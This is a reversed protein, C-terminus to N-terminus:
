EEDDSNNSPNYGPQNEMTAQAPQSYQPQTYQQQQPAPARQAYQPQQYGQPQQHYVPQQRYQQQQAPQGYTAPQPQPRYAAAQPQVYAQPQSQRYQVAPQPNYAVHQPQQVTTNSAPNHYAVQPRVQPYQARQVMVQRGGYNPAMMVRQGNPMQMQMPGQTRVAYRVPLAQANGMYGQHYGGGQGGMMYAQNQALQPRGMQFSPQYTQYARAQLSAQQGYNMVGGYRGGQNLQNKKAEYQQKDLEGAEKMKEIYALNAVKESMPNSRNYDDFFTISHKEYTMDDYRWVDKTCKNIMYRVPLFLYVLTCLFAILGIPNQQESLVDGFAFISIGYLFCYFPILNGFVQAMTAGLHEPIKHRRLLIYKEIWYQLSAGGFCMLSVVPLPFVYFVCMCFMLMTNAYRQAMDLAPGEYLTNAQRQTM